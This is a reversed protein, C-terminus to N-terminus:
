RSEVDKWTLIRDNSLNRSALRGVVLDIDEPPIGGGPKKYILNERAFAEGSNVPSKLCLSRGFVQRLPALKRSVEDKDLKSSKMVLLDNRFRTIQKLEDFTVSSASDFGRLSRDLTAHVEIIDAGLSLALISPSVSGTHDSLGVPVGFEAKMKPILHPGSSSLDAPYHSTCQLIATYSPSSKFRSMSAAMESWTSMGSSLITPINKERVADLFWGHLVEASGVKVASVKMTSVMDLAELSFVSPIFMLGLEQAQRQLSEWQELSFSTRDWYEYRSKDNASSLVRFPEDFTSEFEPLHIQVKVGDVGSQAAFDLFSQALSFSGDHFQGMEALIIPEHGDVFQNPKSKNIAM